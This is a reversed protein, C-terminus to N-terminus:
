AVVEGRSGLQARREVPGVGAQRAGQPRLPARREEGPDAVQAQAVAVAGPDPLGRHRHRGLGPEEM